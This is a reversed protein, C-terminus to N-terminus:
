NLGLSFAAELWEWGSLRNPFNLTAQFPGQGKEWPLSTFAYGWRSYLTDKQGM